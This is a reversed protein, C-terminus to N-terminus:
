ERYLRVGGGPSVGFGLVRWLRTGLRVQGRGFEARKGLAVFRREITAHPRRHELEDAFGGVRSRPGSERLQDEHLYGETQRLRPSAGLTKSRCAKGSASAAGTHGVSFAALRSLLLSSVCAPNM